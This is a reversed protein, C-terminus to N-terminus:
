WHWADRYHRAALFFLLGGLVATIALVGYSHSALAAGGYSFIFSFPAVGLITVLTYLPLPVKTFLGVAYSLLEVPVIMRLLLLGVFEDTGSLKGELAELREIPIFFSVIPKGVYRAILFAIVAGISWAVISLLATTLPGFVVAAFPIIPLVTIPAVVVSAALIAVYAAYGFVSEELVVGLEALVDSQIFFLFTGLALAAGALSM